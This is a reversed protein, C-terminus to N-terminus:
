NFIILCMKNKNNYQDQGNIISKQKYFITPLLFFVSSECHTREKIPAPLLFQVEVPNGGSAGSALADALEAMGAYLIKRGFAEVRKARGTM